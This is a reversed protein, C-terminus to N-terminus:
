LLKSWYEPSLTMFMCEFKPMERKIELSVEKSAESLNKINKKATNINKGLLNYEDAYILLQYTGSLELGEQKKKVNRNVYELV